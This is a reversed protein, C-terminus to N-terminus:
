SISKVEEAAESKKCLFAINCYSYGLNMDVFDSEFPIFYTSASSDLFWEDKYFSGYPV